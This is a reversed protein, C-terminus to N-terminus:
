FSFFTPKIKNLFTKCDYSVVEDSLQEVVASGFQSCDDGEEQRKEQDLKIIKKLAIHMGAQEVGPVLPNLLLRKELAKEKEEAFPSKKVKKVRNGKRANEAAAPTKKKEEVM